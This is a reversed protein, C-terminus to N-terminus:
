KAGNVHVPKFLTICLRPVESWALKEKRMFGTTITLAVVLIIKTAMDACEQPEKLLSEHPKTSARCISSIGLLSVDTYCRTLGGSFTQIHPVPLYRDNFAPPLLPPLLFFEM